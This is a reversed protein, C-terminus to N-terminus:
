ISPTQHVISYTNPWITTGLIYFLYINVQTHIADKEFPDQILDLDLDDVYTVPYFLNMAKQAEKGKQKYGFILDIWCHLSATVKESELACRLMYTFYYPDKKAWLPLDLDAVVKGNEKEGFNYKESNVLMEPMYYFEPILERVDTIDETVSRYTEGISNFLREPLDFRGSFLELNGESFPPLRLLFFLVSGPTSYHSGFHFRNNSETDEEFRHLFHSIRTSSGLSGVNLTLDRFVTKDKINLKDLTYNSIIWPFVPYQAIDHLSRGALSNLAMLYDFNSIKGGAWNEILRTKRILKKPDLTGHYQLNSRRARVLKKEVIRMKEQTFFNLLISKNSVFRIELATKNCIYRRRTLERIDELQWKNILPTHDKIKYHFLGNKPKSTTFAQPYENVFILEDKTIQILGPRVTFSTIRECEEDLLIGKHVKNAKFYGVVSASIPEWKKTSIPPLEARELPEEREFTFRSLKPIYEDFTPLDQLCEPDLANEEIHEFQKNRITLIPHSRNLAEHSSFKFPLKNNPYKDNSKDMINRDRWPGKWQRLRIQLNKWAKKDTREFDNELISVAVRRKTESDSINVITDNIETQMKHSINISDHMEQENTQVIQETKALMQYLLYEMYPFNFHKAIINQIAPNNAFMRKSRESKLVNTIEEYNNSKLSPISTLPFLPQDQATTLIKLLLEQCASQNTPVADIGPTVTKKYITMSNIQLLYIILGLLCEEVLGREVITREQLEMERQLFSIIFALIITIKKHVQIFYIKNRSLWSESLLMLYKGLKQLRDLWIVLQQPDTIYSITACCINVISKIFYEEHQRSGGRGPLSTPETLLLKIVKEYEYGKVNQLVYQIHEEAGQFTLNTSGSASTRMQQLEKSPPGKGVFKHEWLPKLSNFLSHLINIDVMNGEEIQIYKHSWRFVSRDKDMKEEIVDNRVFGFLLYNVAHVINVINFWSINDISQLNNRVMIEPLEDLVGKLLVRILTKASNQEEKSYILGGNEDKQLHTSKPWLVLYEIVKYGVKDMEMYKSVLLTFLKNGMELVAKGTEGLTQHSIDVQFPLLLNLIWHFFQPHSLIAPINENSYQALVYLDLLAKQKLITSNSTNVMKMMISLASPYYIKDTEDIMINAYLQAPQKSLVWEMISDYISVLDTQEIQELVGNGTISHTSKPPKSRDQSPTLTTIEIEAEMEMQTSRKTTVTPSSLIPIIDHPSIIGPDLEGGRILSRKTDGEDLDVSGTSEEESYKLNRNSSGSLEGDRDSHLERLEPDLEGLEPDLEGLEPDLEGLDGLGYIAGGSISSPDKHELERADERRILVGDRYYEIPDIPSERKMAAVCFGALNRLDELEQKVFEKSDIKPAGFADYNENIEEPAITLDFRKKMKCGGQRPNPVATAFIFEPDTGTDGADGPDGTDPIDINFAFRKKGGGGGGFGPGGRKIPPPEIHFEGEEEEEMAVAKSGESEGVDGVEAKEEELEESSEEGGLALSLPFGFTKGKGKPVQPVQWGISFGEEEVGEEGFQFSVKKHKNKPAPPPKYMGGMGSIPARSSDEVEEYKPCEEEELEVGRRIPPHPPTDAYSEEIELSLKGGFKKPGRPPKSKSIKAGTSEIDVKDRNDIHDRDIDDGERGKGEFGLGLSPRPHEHQTNESQIININEGSININQGSININQAGEGSKPSIRQDFGKGMVGIGKMEEPVSLKVQRNTMIREEILKGESVVQRQLDSTPPCGESTQGPSEYINEWIGESLTTPSSREEKIGTPVPSSICIEGEHRSPLILNSLFIVIDKDM